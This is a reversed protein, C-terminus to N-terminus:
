LHEPSQIIWVLVVKRTACTGNSYAAVLDRVHPVQHTIGIGAAFLMVTGYSQFNQDGYPGEVFATTVFKGGPSSEAKTFMKDTFGTRRRIVLSMTTKRAAFIDQRAMPLAKEKSPDTREDSWALSFPHSQMQGVTPMSLYVHQGPQFKWPKAIRLTVRVADGPLAEVEAKTIGNGTNNRVLKWVRLLREIAWCIVASMVFVQQPLSRLHVYVASTAVIVLAIHVHLFTEYFAHRVISPSQLLIAVFACVSITGTLILQSGAM